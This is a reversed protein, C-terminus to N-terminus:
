RDANSRRYSVLDSGVTITGIWWSTNGADLKYEIMKKATEAMVAMHALVMDMVSLNAVETKDWTMTLIYALSRDADTPNDM